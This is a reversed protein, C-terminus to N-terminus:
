GTAHRDVLDQNNLVRQMAPDNVTDDLDREIAAHDTFARRLRRVLEEVFALQEVVPLQAIREVM